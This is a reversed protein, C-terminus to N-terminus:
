RVEGWISVSDAAFIKKLAEAASAETLVFIEANEDPATQPKQAVPLGDVLLYLIHRPSDSM